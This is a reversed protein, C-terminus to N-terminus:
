CIDFDIIIEKNIVIQTSNRKNKAFLENGSGIHLYPPKQIEFVLIKTNDNGYVNGIINKLV